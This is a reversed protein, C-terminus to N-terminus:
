ASYESPLSGEKRLSRASIIDPFWTKQRLTARNYEAFNKFSQEYNESCSM